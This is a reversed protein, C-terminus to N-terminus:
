LADTTASVESTYASFKTGSYARMRYTYETEPDLGVDSFSRTAGSATGVVEFMDEENKREISYTNTEGVADWSILIESSSVSEASFNDPITVGVERCRILQSETKYRGGHRIFINVVGVRWISDLAEFEDFEELPAKYDTLVYMTLNTDLGTSVDSDKQISGSEHQLRVRCKAQAEQTGSRKYGGFGDAVLPRRLPTIITPQEAIHVTIADRLQTLSQKDYPTMAHRWRYM